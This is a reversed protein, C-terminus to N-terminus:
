ANVAVIRWFGLACFAIVEDVEAPSIDKTYTDVGNTITITIM